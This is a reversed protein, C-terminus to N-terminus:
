PISSPPFHISQGTHTVIVVVALVVVEMLMMGVLLKQFYKLHSVTFSSSPTHQEDWGVGNTQKLEM